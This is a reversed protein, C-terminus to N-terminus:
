VGVESALRALLEEAASSQSEIVNVAERPDSEVDYLERRGSADYIYKFKSSRVARLWRAKLYTHRTETFSIREDDSGGTDKGLLISADAGDCPMPPLGALALLTPVLDISRTLPAIRGTPANESLSAIVGPVRIEEDYLECGHLMYGHDGLGEGHDATVLVLTDRSPDARKVTEILRAVLGDVYRVSHDYQERIQNLVEDTAERKGTEIERLTKKNSRVPYTRFGEPSYYECHADFLHCFLFRPRDADRSTYWDTAADVTQEGFRRKALDMASFPKIPVRKLAEMVILAHAFHLPYFPDNERLQDGYTDFGAAFGRNRDLAYASIFGGTQYGQPALWEALMTAGRPVHKRNVVSRMGTIRPYHGSLLAGHSVPTEVAQCFLNDFALGREALADITPTLTSGSGSHGVRDFRLADLTILVINPASM